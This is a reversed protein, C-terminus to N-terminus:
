MLVWVFVSVCENRLTREVRVNHVSGKLQQSLLSSVKSRKLRKNLGKKDYYTVM